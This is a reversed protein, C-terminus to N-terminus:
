AWTGVGTVTGNGIPTIKIYSGANPQFGYDPDVGTATAAPAIKVSGTGTVRIIGTVNYISYRSTGATIAALVTVTANSSITRTTPTSATALSTTNTAISIQQYITTVPSGSVTTLLFSHSKATAASGVASQNVSVNLEFEYTTGAVLVLGTAASNFISKATATVSFDAYASGDSVYYYSAVDVTRGTTANPIKYFAKGDYEMAGAIPTALVLSSNSDFYLPSTGAGTAGQRLTLSSTLTGGSFSPGTPGTVTSAAGTPGTPGTPGTITSAAGTPGTPGTVTSASGTAGTPGTPGTVTSAAGTPGTPGTPGTITSAAGTSGTPGTPGISGTPGTPGNSGTPGTPGTVLSASGTPGTNGTLGTAGTPGTPGTPGINGSPGGFGVVQIIESNTTSIVKLNSNQTTDPIIKFTTM